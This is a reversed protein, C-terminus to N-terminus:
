YISFICKQLMNEETLEANISAKLSEIANPLLVDIKVTTSEQIQYFKGSFIKREEVTERDKYIKGDIFFKRYAVKTLEKIKDLDWQSDIKGDWAINIVPSIHIDPVFGHLASSFAEKLKINIAEGIQENMGLNVERSLEGNVDHIIRNNHAIMAPVFAATCRNGNYISSAEFGKSALAEFEKADYKLEGKDFKDCIAKIKPLQKSQLSINFQKSIMEGLKDDDYEAWFDAIVNKINQKLQYLAHAYYAVGDSVVYSPESDRYVQSETFVDKVLKQLWPMRSAGGTLVVIKPIGIQEKELRLKEDNLDQLLTQRYPALIENELQEKAIVSVDFIRGKVNCILSNSLDLTLISLENTYYDEKQGKIYHTVANRWNLHSQTCLPESEQKAKNFDSDNKEFYKFIVNEVASAGHKRGDTSPKSVDKGYATFDITSSGIDIVLVSTDIFRQEAKFKFYAADSEKIVWDVPIISSVFKKYEQIQSADEKGWGSPCAVYIEFNREGTVPNYNLFSQNQVIHEFVLKIFAGFAEKNKPTIENMPAKFHLTFDPLAYDRIDKAFQWDGTKENRCVASEVKCSEPTQGDLIHLREVTGNISNTSYFSATTEGHGFDIGILYM